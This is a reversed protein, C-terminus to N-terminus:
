GTKFSLYVAAVGRINNKSEFDHTNTLEIINMMTALIKTQPGTVCCKLNPKLSLFCPQFGRAEIICLAKSSFSTCAPKLKISM